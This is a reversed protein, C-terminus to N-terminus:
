NAMADDILLSRILSDYLSLRKTFIDGNLSADDLGRVAEDLYAQMSSDDVKGPFSLGNAPVTGTATDAFLASSLPLIASVQHIGDDTLGYFVYYLSDNTIAGKGDGFATVFRVGKGNKFVVRQGNTQLIPHIGVMPLITMSDTFMMTGRMTSSALPGSGNITASLTNMFSIGDPLGRSSTADVTPMAAGKTDTMMETTSMTESSAAPTALMAGSMSAYHSVPVVIIRPAFYTDSATNGEFGGLTFVMGTLKAPSATSTDAGVAMAPNVFGSSVTVSPIMATDVEFGVGNFEIANGSLTTETMGTQSGPGPTATTITEAMVTATAETETAAPEATADMVATSAAETPLTASETTPEVTATAQGLPTITPDVVNSGRAGCASVALMTAVSTALFFIRKQKM